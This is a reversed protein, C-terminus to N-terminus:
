LHNRAKLNRVNKLHKGNRTCKRKGSIIVRIIKPSFSLNHHEENQLNRWIGTAEGRDPRFIGKLVKIQTRGKPHSIL